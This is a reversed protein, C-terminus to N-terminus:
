SPHGVSRFEFTGRGWSKGINLPEEGGRGRRRVNLSVMPLGRRSAMSYPTRIPSVEDMAIAYPRSMAYVWCRSASPFRRLSGRTFRSSDTFRPSTQSSILFLKPGPPPIDDRPPPIPTSRPPDSSTAVDDRSRPPLSSRGGDRHDRGKPPDGGGKPPFSPPPICRLSPNTTPSRSMRFLHAGSM